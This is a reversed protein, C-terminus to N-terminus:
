KGATPHEFELAEAGRLLRKEAWRYIFFRSESPFRIKVIQKVKNVELECSWQKHDDGDVERVTVSGDPAVHELIDTYFDEGWFQVVRFRHGDIETKALEIRKGTFIDPIWVSSFGIVGFWVYGLFLLVLVGTAVKWRNLM